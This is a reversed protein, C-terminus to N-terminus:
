IQDSLQTYGNICYHGLHINFCKKSTCHIMNDVQVSVFNVPINVKGIKFNYGTALVLGVGALSLNPGFGIEFGEDGRLGILSSISPLIYGKELGGLLFVWEVLGVFDEGSSFRTEFQWGYQTIFHSNLTNSITGQTLTTIGVRPGALEEPEAYVSTAIMVNFILFLIMKNIM